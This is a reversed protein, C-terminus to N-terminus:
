QSAEGDVSQLAVLLQLRNRSAILASLLLKLRAALSSTELLAQARAGARTVSRAEGVGARRRAGRACRM